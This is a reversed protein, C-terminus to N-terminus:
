MREEVREYPVYNTRGVSAHYIERRPATGYAFVPLNTKRATDSKIASRLAAGGFVVETEAARARGRM